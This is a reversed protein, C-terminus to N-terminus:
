SQVQAGQVCQVEKLLTKPDMNLLTKLEESSTTTAVSHRLWKINNMSPSVTKRFVPINEHALLENLRSLNTKM